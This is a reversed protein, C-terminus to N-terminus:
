SSIHIHYWTKASTILNRLYDPDADLDLIPNVSEEGNGFLAFKRRM